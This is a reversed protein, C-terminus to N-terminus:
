LIDYFSADQSLKSLASKLPTLWIDENLVKRSKIIDGTIVSIMIIVNVNCIYAKKVSYYLKNRM